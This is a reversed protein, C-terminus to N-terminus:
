KGLTPCFDHWYSSEVSSRSHLLLSNFEPGWFYAFLLGLRCGTRICSTVAAAGARQQCSAARAGSAMAHNPCPCEPQANSERQKKPRPVCWLLLFFPFILFSAVLGNALPRFPYFIFTLATRPCHCLWLPSPEFLSMAESNQLKRRNEPAQCNGAAM